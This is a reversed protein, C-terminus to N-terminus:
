ASQDSPSESPRRAFVTVVATLAILAYGALATWGAIPMMRHFRAALLTVVLLESAVALAWPWPTRRHALMGIALLLPAAMILTLATVYAAGGHDALWSLATRPALDTALLVAGAALASGLWTM